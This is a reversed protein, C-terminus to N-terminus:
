KVVAIKVSSKTQDAEYYVLYIGSAVVHGDSDRGDWTVSKTGASEDQDVLTRVPTGRLSYVKLSVHGPIISYTFTVQEGNAPNFLNGVTNFDVLGGQFNLVTSTQLPNVSQANPQFAWGSLSPTLSYYGEFLHDASYGGTIASVTVGASAIGGSLTLAVGPIPAGAFDLVTGSISLDRPADTMFKLENTDGNLYGALYHGYRNFVVSPGVGNFTGSELTSLTWFSTLVASRLGIGTSTYVIMPKNQENVSIDSYAGAGSSADVTSSTFNVGDFFGYVLGGTDEDFYSMHAMGLKDIALGMQQTGFLPSASEQAFGALYFGSGSQKVFLGLREGLFDVISLFSPSNSSDLALAVPGGTVTFIPTTVWVTGSQSGYFSTSSVSQSYVVRPANDTGVAISVFTSTSIFDEVSDSLWTSGSLRAHKVGAPSDTQYYVVHPIGSPSLALDSQPTVKNSTIDTVTWTTTGNPLTAYKLIQTTTDVFVMHVNSHSDQAINASMYVSTTVAVPSVTDVTVASRVSWPVALIPLLLLTKKM